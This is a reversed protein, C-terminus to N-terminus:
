TLYLEILNSKPYKRKPFFTGDDNEWDFADCFSTPDDIANVIAPWQDAAATAASATVQQATTEFEPLSLKPVAFTEKIDVM